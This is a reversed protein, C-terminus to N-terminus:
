SYSCRVESSYIVWKTKPKKVDSKFKKFSQQPIIAEQTGGDDNHDDDDDNLDNSLENMVEDDIGTVVDDEDILDNEVNKDDNRNMDDYSSIIGKDDNHITNNSGVDSINM